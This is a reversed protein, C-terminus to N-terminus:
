GRGLIGAAPAAGAAGAQTVVAAASERWDVGAGLTGAALEIEAMRALTAGGLLRNGCTRDPGMDVVGEGLAIRLM